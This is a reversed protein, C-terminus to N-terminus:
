TVHFFIKKMKYYKQLISIESYLNFALLFSTFSRDVFVHWIHSSAELPRFLHSVADWCGHDVVPAHLMRSYILMMNIEAWLFHKCWEKYSSLEKNMIKGGLFHSFVNVKSHHIETNKTVAKFKFKENKKRKTSEKHRNGKM